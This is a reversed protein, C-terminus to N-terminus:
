DGKILPAIYIDMSYTDEDISLQIPVDTRMSVTVATNKPLTKLLPLIVKIPFVAVQEEDGELVSTGDIGIQAAEVESMSEFMLGTEIMRVTVGGTDTTISTFCSQKAIDILDDSMLVCTSMDDLKPRPRPRDEPDILRKARKVRDYRVTVFSDDFSIDCDKNKPLVDSLFPVSIMVDKDLTSGDPFAAPKLIAATISVCSPDMAHMDWGGDSPKITTELVGMSGFARLVNQLVDSNVKM